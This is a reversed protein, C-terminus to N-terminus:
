AEVQKPFKNTQFLVTFFNVNQFITIRLGVLYFPSFKQKGRKKTTGSAGRKNSEYKKLKEHKSTKIGM